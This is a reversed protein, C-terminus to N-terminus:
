PSGLRCLRVAQRASRPPLPLQAGPEDTALFSPKRETPKYVPGGAGCDGACTIGGRGEKNVRKLGRKKRTKVAEGLRKGVLGM